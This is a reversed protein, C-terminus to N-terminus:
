QRLMLDYVPQVSPNYAKGVGIMIMSDSKSAYTSDFAKKFGNLVDSSSKLSIILEKM